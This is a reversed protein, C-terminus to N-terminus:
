PRSASLQIVGNLAHIIAQRRVDARGGSFHCTETKFSGEKLTWCFCVTGVPKGATGGEPGAIGTVSVAIHAHSAALAGLAMERATQESVAGFVELTEARVGLMQQKAQNTYTIFGREFWASSGATRTVAEGIGGGTCSEATVLMMRRAQLAVGVEASLRDVDDAM